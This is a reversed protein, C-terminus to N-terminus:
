KPLERNLAIIEQLGFIAVGDGTHVKIVPLKGATSKAERERLAEDVASRLNLHNTSRDIGLPVTCSAEFSQGSTPAFGFPAWMLVINFNGRESTM